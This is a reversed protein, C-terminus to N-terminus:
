VVQIMEEKSEKYWTKFDQPNRELLFFGSQSLYKLQYLIFELWSVILIM